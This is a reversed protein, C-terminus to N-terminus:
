PTIGTFTKWKRIFHAQDSYGDIAYKGKRLHRLSTHFRVIRCFTKPSLGTREYFLRQLHRTSIGESRALEQIQINGRQRYIQHFMNAIQDSFQVHTNKNLVTLFYQNFLNIWQLENTNLREQLETWTKNLDSLNVSQGNFLDIKTQLIARMGGPRFRIGLFIMDKSIPVDM